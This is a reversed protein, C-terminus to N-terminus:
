KKVLFDFAAKVQNDVEMGSEPLKEVKDKLEVEIDPMLGKGHINRGKPTYYRATTMKIASGDDLGFVGQVIGKGFTKTGLLKGKEEDQIAGCFVESASASNENVLIVLPKDFSDDNKAMYEQKEGKKDKSYVVVGKPLMRDLMEVASDLLGGGNNRLDIILGKQGQKELEKLASEFQKPTVQEFSSIQIYGIKDDLMQSSVTDEEIEDRVVTIDMQEEGRIITLVVESGKVGKVLAQVQSIETGTVEKGDVAYIVDGDEVGAKECPSNKMPSVVTVLGTDSDVSIYAGIGCYVGSTKEMIDQYEEATYYAAYEDGLGNVVGKYVSDAMKEEDIDDLFYEKIFLELVNVKNLIKHELASYTGGVALVGSLNMIGAIDLVLVLVIMGLFCSSAGLFFGKLIKKDKM